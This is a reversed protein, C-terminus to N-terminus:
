VKMEISPSFNVFDLMLELKKEIKLCNDSSSIYIALLYKKFHKVVKAM